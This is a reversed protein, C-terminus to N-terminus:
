VTVGCGGTKHLPGTWVKSYQLVVAVQKMGDDLGFRVISYCWLWRNCAM